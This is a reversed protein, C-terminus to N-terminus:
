PMLAHFKDFYKVFEEIDVKGDDNPDMSKLLEAIEDQSPFNPVRINGYMMKFFQTMEGSDLFGSGDKDLAKFMRKLKPQDIGKDYVLFATMELFELFEIVENNDLDMLKMMFDAKDNNDEKIHERMESKTLQGDGDKDVAAFADRIAEFEEGTLQIAM